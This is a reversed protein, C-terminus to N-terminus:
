CYLPQRNPVFGQTGDEVSDFLLFQVHSVEHWLSSTCCLVSHGRMVETLAPHTSFLEAIVWCGVLHNSYLNGAWSFMGFGLRAKM